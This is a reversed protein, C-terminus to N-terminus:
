KKRGLGLGIALASVLTTVRLVAGSSLIKANTKSNNIKIKNNNKEKSINADHDANFERALKASAYSAYFEGHQQPLHKLKVISEEINALAEQALIPDANAYADKVPYMTKDLDRFFTNLAVSATSAGSECRHAWLAPIYLCDGPQLV